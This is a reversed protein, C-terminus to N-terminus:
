AGGRCSVNGVAVNGMRHILGHHPLIRCQGLIEPHMIHRRRKIQQLASSVFPPEREIRGRVSQAILASQLGGNETGLRTVVVVPAFLRGHQKLREDIIVGKRSPLLRTPKAAAWV